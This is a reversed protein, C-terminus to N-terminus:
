AGRPCLCGGWRNGLRWRRCCSCWSTLVCSMEHAPLACHHKLLLVSSASMKLTTLARHGPMWSDGTNGTPVVPAGTPVVAAGAPPLLPLKWPLKWFLPFVFVFTLVVDTTSEFLVMPLLHTGQETASSCEQTNDRSATM